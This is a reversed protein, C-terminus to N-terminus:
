FPRNDDVCFLSDDEYKFEFPIDTIYYKVKSYKGKKNRIQESTYVYGANKLQLISRQVTDKSIGLTNAINQLTYNWTHPDNSKLEIQILRSTISISKDRRVKDDSITFTEQNDRDNYRKENKTYM